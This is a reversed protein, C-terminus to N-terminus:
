FHAGVMPRNSKKFSMNANNATKSPNRQHQPKIEHQQPQSATPFFGSSRVGLMLTKRVNISESTLLSQQTHGGYGLSSFRGEGAATNAQTLMSATNRGNNAQQHSVSIDYLGGEKFNYSEKVRAFM